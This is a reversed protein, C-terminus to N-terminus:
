SKRLTLSNSGDSVVDHGEQVILYIELNMTLVCKGSSGSSKTCCIILKISLELLVNIYLIVM